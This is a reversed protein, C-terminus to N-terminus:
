HHSRLSQAVPHSNDLHFIKPLDKSTVIGLVLLLAAVMAGSAGSPLATRLRLMTHILIRDCGSLPEKSSGLWSQLCTPSITLPSSTIANEMYQPSETPALDGQRPANSECYPVINETGPNSLKLRQAASRKEGSCNSSGASYNKSGLLQWM